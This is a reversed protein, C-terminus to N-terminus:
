LGPRASPLRRWLLALVLLDPWALTPPRQRGACAHAIHGLGNGTAVRNLDIIGLGAIRQDEDGGFPGGLLFAHSYGQNRLEAAQMLAFAAELDVLVLRRTALGSVVSRTAAAQDSRESDDRAILEQPRCAPSYRAV